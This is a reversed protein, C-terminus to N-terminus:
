ASDVLQTEPPKTPPFAQMAKKREPWHSQRLDNIVTMGYIRDGRETERKSQLRHVLDVLPRLEERAPATM